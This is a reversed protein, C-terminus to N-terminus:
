KAYDEWHDYSDNETDKRRMFGCVEVGDVCQSSFLVIQVYIQLFLAFKAYHINQSILGTKYGTKKNADNDQNM